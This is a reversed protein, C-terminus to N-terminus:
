PGKATDGAVMVTDRKITTDATTTTTTTTIVATTDAAPTEAGKPGCAALGLVAGVVLYKSM